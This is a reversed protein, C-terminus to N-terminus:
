MSEPIHISNIPVLITEGPQMHRKIGPIITPKIARIRFRKHFAALVMVRQYIRKRTGPKTTKAYTVLTAEFPYKGLLRSSVSRAM